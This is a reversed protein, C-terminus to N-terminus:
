FSLMFEDIVNIIKKSNLQFKNAFELSLTTVNALKDKLLLAQEQGEEHKARRLKGECEFVGTQRVPGYDDNQEPSRNTAVTWLSMRTVVQGVSATDTRSAGPTGTNDQQSFPTRHLFFCM